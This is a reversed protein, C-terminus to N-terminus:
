RRVRRRLLLLAALAAGTPPAGRCGCTSPTVPTPPPSCAAEDVEVPQDASDESSVCAEYGDCDQDVGDAPDQAQPHVEGDGDDCDRGWAGSDPEVEGDDDCDDDNPLTLDHGAYGDGDADILCRLLGDCNLDRSAAAPESRGPHIESSWDDCDDPDSPPALGSTCPVVSRIPAGVTFGDRDADIGCADWGDGDEDAGNGAQEPAGPWAAARSDDPDTGAPFGDGDADEEGNRLPALGHHTGGADTWGVLAHGSLAGYVRVPQRPRWVQAHEALPGRPGGPLWTLHTQTATTAILDIHGDEDVDHIALRDPDLGVPLWRDELPRPGGLVLVLGAFAPTEPEIPLSMFSVAVEEDGDGDVDPVAQLDVGTAYTSRWVAEPTTRVGGGEAWYVRLETDAHVVLDDDGDGDLDALTASRTLRALGIEVEWAPPHSAMDPGGRWLEVTWTSHNDMTLVALDAVGDGDVDGTAPRQRASVAADPDRWIGEFEPLGAPGGPYLRLTQANALVVDTYGDGTLDAAALTATSVIPSAVSLTTVPVDRLHSTVRLRTERADTILEILSPEEAPTLPVFLHDAAFSQPEVRIDTTPLSFRAASAPPVPATCSTFTIAWLLM